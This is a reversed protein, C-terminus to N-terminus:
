EDNEEDSRNGSEPTHGKLQHRYHSYVNSEGVNEGVTFDCVKVVKNDDDRGYVDM